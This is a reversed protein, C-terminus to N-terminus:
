AGRRQGDQAQPWEPRSRAAAPRTNGALAAVLDLFAPDYADEVHDANWLGSDRVKSSAAHSGLWSSSPKDPGGAACSLLAIANREIFGRDSRGDPRTPVALWLFPMAGIHQSVARELQDETTAWGTHPHRSAWSEALGGPLHYRRILATGVHRRFISARHNGGGPNRGGIRGRHQRLRGWLITKDGPRLAHTGVRVVRPSGDPRVQGDEFFFYVGHRPWGDRGTSCALRRPGNEAEALESMQRYFDELHAQRAPNM